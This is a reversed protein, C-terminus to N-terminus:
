TVTVRGRRSGTISKGYPYRADGARGKLHCRGLHAEAKM